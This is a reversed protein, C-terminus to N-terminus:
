NSPNVQCIWWPRSYLRSCPGFLLPPLCSTSPHHYLNLNNKPIIPPPLFKSSHKETMFLSISSYKVIMWPTNGFIWDKEEHRACIRGLGGARFNQTVRMEANLIMLKSIENCIRSRQYFDNMNTLIHNITFICISCPHYCQLKNKKVKTYFISFIKSSKFALSPFLIFVSNVYSAFSFHYYTESAQPISFM